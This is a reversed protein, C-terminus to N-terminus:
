APGQSKVAYFLLVDHVYLLHEDELEHQTQHGPPTTAFHVKAGRNARIYVLSQGDETWSGAGSPGETGPLFETESSLDVSRMHLGFQGGLGSRFVLATGDHTWVPYQNIGGVDTVKTERGTELDRILIDQERAETERGFAVQTGDPSLRPMGIGRGEVLPM